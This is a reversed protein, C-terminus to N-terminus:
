PLINTTTFFKESLLMKSFTLGSSVAIIMYVDPVIPFGFPMTSVWLFMTAAVAPRPTATKMPNMKKKVSIERSSLVVYEDAVEGKGM